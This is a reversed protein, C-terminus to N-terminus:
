DERSMQVEATKRLEWYGPGGTDAAAGGELRGGGGRAGTISAKRRGASAGGMGGPKLVEGTQVGGTDGADRAKEDHKQM